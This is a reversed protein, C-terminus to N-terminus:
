NNNDVALSFTEVLGNADVAYTGAPLGMVELPITQSFPVIVQTCFADAERKTTIKVLFTNDARDQIIQDISTCGDSFNGKIELNIKIPFSEMIVLEISDLQALEYKFNKPHVNLSDPPTEFRSLNQSVFIIIFSILLAIASFILTNKM